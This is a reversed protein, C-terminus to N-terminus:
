CHVQFEHTKADASGMAGADAEVTIFDLGM